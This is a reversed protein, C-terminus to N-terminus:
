SKKYMYITFDNNLYDTRLKCLPDLTQCYILMEQPYFSQLDSAQIVDRNLLNFAVGKSAIRWMEAIVKKSYIGKDNYPENLAGSLLVWTYETDMFHKDFLEGAWLDANPHTSKAVGILDPSIDIGAYEVEIDKKCTFWTKLDAFGCGVDLVSDGSEVGIEALVKFRLEQIDSNSWYLAHPHQGFRLLSDSHRDVIRKRQQKNV